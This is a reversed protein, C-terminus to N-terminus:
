DDRKNKICLADVLNFSNWILLVVWLMLTSPHTNPTFISGILMFLSLVVAITTITIAAVRIGNM